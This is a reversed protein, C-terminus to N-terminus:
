DSRKTNYVNKTASLLLYNHWEGGKFWTKEARGFVTFGMKEICRLALKNHELCPCLLTTFSTNDWVWQLCEAGIKAVKGYARPYFALHAEALKDNLTILFFIGQTVGDREVKIYQMEPTLKPQYTNPDGWNDDFNYSINNGALVVDRIEKPDRTLSFKYNM